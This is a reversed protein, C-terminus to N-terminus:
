IEHGMGKIVEAMPAFHQQNFLRRLKAETTHLNTYHRFRSKLPAPIRPQKPDIEWPHFYVVVPQGERANISALARQVLALPFLRLYGGGAVPLRYTLRLARAEFTTPPFEVLSGSGLTLVHPFRPADPVGYTDHFIPFISSDYTFGCEVLIDLAWMSKATISYSPARYGLVQGGTLDELLSKARTVDQRFAEPGIRYILQHGYGHCAVEHGNDAIRRVLGPRREAEWGLIFFTAKLGHEDLLDLIRLTNREVRSEYGDWAQPSVSGAFAQVHFYDEVDVTLANLIPAHRKSM